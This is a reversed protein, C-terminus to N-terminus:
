LLWSQYPVYCTNFHFSVQSWILLVSGLAVYPAVVLLVSDRGQYLSALRALIMVQLPVLYYGFRDGIVSSFLALPFSAVMMFAGMLALDYDRRFRALWSPRLYVLFLGGVIALLACRIPGGAADSETDVYRDAYVGFAESVLYYLGPLGLLTAIAINKRTFGGRVFPALVLFLAASAHFLSGVLVFGVFRALRRDVLANYALCLLGLAAAQRIASMPLNIILIPFCLILFGLPDPQRRAFAHLGVFFITGTLVNIYPYDLNFAHLSHVLLWYLPERKELAAELPQFRQSEYHGLYGFWDCGVQYRFAVFAFLGLLSVLYFLRRAEPRGASLLGQLLLGGYVAIYFM